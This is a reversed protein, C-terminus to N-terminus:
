SVFREREALFAPESSQAFSALRALVLEVDNFVNRGVFLNREVAVAIEDIEARTRV